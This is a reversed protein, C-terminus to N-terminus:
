SREFQSVQSGSTRFFGKNMNQRTREPNKLSPMFVAYIM